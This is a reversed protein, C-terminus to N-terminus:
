MVEVPTYTLSSDDIKGRNVSVLLYGYGYSKDDLIAGATGVIVQELGPVAKVEAAPVYNHVHGVFYYKGKLDVFKQFLSVATAGSVGIVETAPVHGFLVSSTYLGERERKLEALARVQRTTAHGNLNDCWQGQHGQAPGYNDLGIFLVGKHTFDYTLESNPRQKETARFLWHTRDGAGLPFVQTPFATLYNTAPNSVNSLEHNGLALHYAPMHNTDAAAGQVTQQWLQFGKLGIDDPWVGRDVLDGNFLVFDVNERLISQAVQALASTNIQDKHSTGRDDGTSAFKWKADAATADLTVQFNDGFRESQTTDTLGTRDIPTGEGDVFHLIAIDNAVLGSAANPTADSLVGLDISGLHRAAVVPSVSNGAQVIGITAEAVLDAAPDPIPASAPNVGAYMNVSSLSAGVRVEDINGATDVMTNRFDGAVAITGIAGAQISVRGLDPGLWSAASLSSLLDGVQVNLAGVDHFSLSGAAGDISILVSLLPRVDHLEIANVSGAIQVDGGLNVSDAALEDLSGYVSIAGLSTPTASDITLRSQGTTGNLILQTANGGGAPVDVIGTGPGVLNVTVAVGQSDVYAAPSGAQFNLAVTVVEVAGIDARGGAVRPHGVQDVATRTVRPGHNIAPSSTAPLATPVSGGHLALPGLDAAVGDQNQDSQLKAYGDLHLPVGADTEQILCYASGVGGVIDNGRGTASNGAVITGTLGVPGGQFPVNYLGGGDNAQNEAITSFDVTLDAQNGGVWGDNFIGGGSGYRPGIVMVEGDDGGGQYDYYVNHSPSTATNQVITSNSVIMTPVRRMRTQHNVLNALAGGNNATNDSFTSGTVEVTAFNAVAGGDGTATNSTLWSDRLALKGYNAIAGGDGSSQGHQLTLGAITVTVSRRPTAVQFIRSHGGGDVTLEDAGLGNIRLNDTIALQGSTLTITKGALEPAFEITDTGPHRNAALVAARLSGPGSDDTNRVWGVTLLRRLELQEFMLPRRNAHRASRRRRAPQSM